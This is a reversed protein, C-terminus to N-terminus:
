PYREVSATGTGNLIRSWAYPVTRHVASGDGYLGTVRRGDVATTRSYPLDFELSYMSTVFEGFLNKRAVHGAHTHCNTDQKNISRTPDIKRHAIHRGGADTDTWYVVRSTM